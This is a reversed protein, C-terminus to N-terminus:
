HLKKEQRMMILLSEMRKIRTEPKKATQLRWAIAYTNSKNLSKFFDYAKRDKKLVELFDAPVVMTSPADYAQEWRGDKKAANIETLGRDTM